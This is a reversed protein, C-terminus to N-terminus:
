PTVLNLDHCFFSYFKLGYSKFADVHICHSKRKTFLSKNQRPLTALSWSAAKCLGNHPYCISRKALADRLIKAPALTGFLRMSNCLSQRLRGLDPCRFRQLSNVDIVSPTAMSRRFRQCLCRCLLHEFYERPWYLTISIGAPRGSASHYNVANTYEFSFFSDSGSRPWLTKVSSHSATDGGRVPLCFVKRLPLCCPGFFGGDSAQPRWGHRHELCLPPAIPLMLSLM